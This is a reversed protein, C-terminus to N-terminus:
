FLGVVLGLAVTPGRVDRSHVGGLAAFGAAVRWSFAASTAVRSGLTRQLAVSPELVLGNDSDLLTGVAPDHVDANGVGLLLGIRLDPGNQPAPRFVVRLGGYGFRLWVTSRARRVTAHTLAIRAAGALELAPSVRLSIAEGAGPVWHGALRTVGVEAGILASEM